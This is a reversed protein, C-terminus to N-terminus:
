NLAVEINTIPDIILGKWEMEQRSLSRFILNWYYILFSEFIIFPILNKFFFMSYVLLITLTMNAWFWRREFFNWRKYSKIIKLM